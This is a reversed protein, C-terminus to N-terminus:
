AIVLIGLDDMNEVKVLLMERVEVDPEGLQRRLEVSGPLDSFQGASQAKGIMPFSTFGIASKMESM